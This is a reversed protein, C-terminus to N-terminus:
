SPSTPNQANRGTAFSRGKTKETHELLHRIDNLQSFYPGAASRLQRSSHAISPAIVQQLKNIKRLHKVLCGFDGDGSIIIAKDYDDLDIMAQLVLEADVNGKVIGGALVNVPKFILSFGCSELFEYLRKNRAIYGIFIYAKTARYKKHLHKRLRLWDIKWGQQQLSLYVNQMDIFAYNQM